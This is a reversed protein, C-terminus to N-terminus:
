VVFYFLYIANNLSQFIGIIIMKQVYVYYYFFCCCFYVFLRFVNLLLKYFLRFIRLLMSGIFYLQTHFINKQEEREQSTKRHMSNSGTGFCTLIAM